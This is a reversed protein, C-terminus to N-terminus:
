KSNKNTVRMMKKSQKPKTKKTKKTKNAKNTNKSEKKKCLKRTYKKYNSMKKHSTKKNSEVVNEMNIADNLVHSSLKVDKLTNKIIDELQSIRHNVKQLELYFSMQSQQIPPQILQIPQITQVTQATQVTQVTQNMFQNQNCVDLTMFM